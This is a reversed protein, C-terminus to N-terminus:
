QNDAGVHHYQATFQGAPMWRLQQFSAIRRSSPITALDTGKGQVGDFVAQCQTVMVRLGRSEGHLIADQLTSTVAVRRVFTQLRSTPETKFAFFVLEITQQSNTLRGVYDGVAWEFNSALTGMSPTGNPFARFVRAVGDLVLKLGSATVNWTRPAIASRVTCTVGCLAVDLCLFQHLWYMLEISTTPLLWEGAWHGGVRGSAFGTDGCISRTDLLWRGGWRSRSEQLREPRNEVIGLRIELMQATFKRFLTSDHSKLDPSRLIALIPARLTAMWDCQYTVTIVDDVLAGISSYVRGHQQERARVVSQSIADYVSDVFRAFQRQLQIKNPIKGGRSAEISDGTSINEGRATLNAGIASQISRKIASTGFIDFLLTACTRLVPQWRPELRSADPMAPVAWTLSFASIFHERWPQPLGTALVVELWLTRMDQAVEDLCFGFENLPVRALFFHLILLHQLKEQSKPAMQLSKRDDFEYQLRQPHHLSDLLRASSDENTNGDSSTTPHNDPRIAEVTFPTSALIPVSEESSQGDVGDGEDQATPNPTASVTFPSSARARAQQSSARRYSVLTFGPSSHHAVVVARRPRNGNDIVTSRMGGGGPLQRFVYVRLVHKMERQRKTAGSEYNYFWKPYKHNNLVYM